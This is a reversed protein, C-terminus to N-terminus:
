RLKKKKKLKKELRDRASEVKRKNASHSGSSSQNIGNSKTWSGSHGGNAGPHRPTVPLPPRNMASLESLIDAAAQGGDDMHSGSRSRGKSLSWRQKSVNPSSNSRMGDSSGNSASNSRKRDRSTSAPSKDGHAGSKSASSGNSAPPPPMSPPMPMPPPSPPPPPSSAPVTVHPPPTAPPLSLPMSRDRAAGNAGGTVPASVHAGALAHSLVATPPASNAGSPLSDAQAALSSKSGSGSRRRQQQGTQASRSRQKSSSSTSSSSHQSRSKSRAKSSSKSKSKSSRCTSCEYNKPIEVGEPIGNCLTHHWVNCSECEIMPNGDNFNAGKVGCICEFYWNECRFCQFKDGVETQGPKLACKAHVWTGCSDCAVMLSGDDINKGSFGCSCDVVWEEVAGGSVDGTMSEPTAALASSGLLTSKKKKQNKGSRSSSSAGTARGLTSNTKKSKGRQLQELRERQHLRAQQIVEEKSQSTLTLEDRKARKRIALLADVPAPPLRPYANEVDSADSESTSSEGDDRNEGEGGSVGNIEVAPQPERKLKRSSCSGNSSSSSSSNSSSSSSDSDSASEDDKNEKNEDDKDEDKQEDSHIDDDSDSSVSSSDSMSSSSESSSESSSSNSTTSPCPSSGAETMKVKEVSPKAAAADPLEEERVVEKVGDAEFEAKPEAKSEASVVELNHRISALMAKPCLFGGATKCIRAVSVDSADAASARSGEIASEDRGNEGELWTELKAVLAALQNLEWQSMAALKRTSAGSAGKKSHQQQQAVRQQLSRAYFGAAYWHVAEFQPFRFLKAVHLADEIAHCRLQMQIHYGTLFNGGFAISDEPTYVAHIWGSPLLFTEGARVEVYSVDDMHTLLFDSEGFTYQAQFEFYARM